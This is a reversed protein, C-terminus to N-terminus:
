TIIKAINELAMVNQPEKHMPYTVFRQQKNCHSSAFPGLHTCVGCSVRRDPSRNAQDSSNMLRKKIMRCRKFEIAWNWAYKTSRQSMDKIM